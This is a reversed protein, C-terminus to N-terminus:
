ANPAGVLSNLLNEKANKQFRSCITCYFFSFPLFRDRLCIDIIDDRADQLVENEVDPVIVQAAAADAFSFLLLALLLARTTPRM